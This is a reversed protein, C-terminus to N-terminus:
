KGACPRGRGFVASPGDKPVAGEPIHIHIDMNKYFEEGLGLERSKSREPTFIMSFARTLKGQANEKVDLRVPSFGAKRAAECLASSIQTPIASVLVDYTFFASGESATTKRLIRYGVTYSSAEGPLYSIIESQANVRMAAPTLEPWTFRRMVIHPGGTVLVCPMGIGRAIKAERSAKKIARTIAAVYTKDIQDPLDTLKVAAAKKIVGSRGAMIVKVANQTIEIGYRVAPTNKAM